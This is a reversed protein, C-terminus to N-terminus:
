MYKVGQCDYKGECQSDNLFVELCDVFNTGNFPDGGIGLFFFFKLSLFTYLVGPGTLIDNATFSYCKILLLQYPISKVWSAWFM